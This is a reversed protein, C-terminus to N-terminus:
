FSATFGPRGGPAGSEKAATTRFTQLDIKTMLPLTAHFGTKRYVTNVYHERTRPSRHLTM